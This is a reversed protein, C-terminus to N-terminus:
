NERQKEIPASKWGFNVSDNRNLDFSFFRFSKAYKQSQQGFSLPRVLSFPSNKHPKELFFPESFTTLTTMVFLDSFPRVWRMSRRQRSGGANVSILTQNSNQFIKHYFFSNPFYTHCVNSHQAFLM